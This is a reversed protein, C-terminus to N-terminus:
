KLSISEHPITISSHIIIFHYLLIPKIKMVKFFIFLKFIIFYIKLNLRM